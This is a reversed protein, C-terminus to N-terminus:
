SQPTSHTDECILCLQDGDRILEIEDIEAGDSTMVRTCRRGFKKTGIELLEPITDPLSALKAVDGKDPCRLIVRSPQHGFFPSNTFSHGDPAADGRTAAASVFGFLSNRFTNVRRRPHKDVWTVERTRPTVDMTYGTKVNKLFTPDPVKTNPVMLVSQVKADEKFHDFLAKIEENGYHEALNRPTWGNIDSKDIDAGKKLLFKVIEGKGNTVAAHLATTDDSTSPLTVDGGYRVIDKLLELNDQEVAHCAYQPVDGSALTAGQEVLLKIVAEQKAVIADWLPVIGETDKINPDAGYALLVVVCNENGKAAAIHLATRGNIDVENPNSGRRLLHQLLPEDGRTAAFCLSLPLDMRGHALMNEIEKLFSQMIPAKQEKLHELLNNIIIAGDGVNAQVLSLLSSRSLRLLQSLRKTRVTFLQPRYCLVGLEGCVGGSYFDEIIQESGNQQYIFEMAGSVLVYLDTPAENQLIVNEKPPFYGAKMESVLQHLLDDSVGRFLYVKELLPYFLYHSISSKIANPLSELIEQHQLGESNARYKLRLHAVMQEQLHAPLGNRVAFSSAAQVTERFKRTRSTADVVLNTMNGIIYACLGLNFLMYFIDFIMEDTNVPHLDGYGTTSLTSISWYVSAVYRVWLDKKLDDDTVLTLWINKSNPHHAAINYFFCAAAHVAFLTVSVLKLCRIWFYNINPAKELRSFMKSVRRLRWLRLMNFFGYRKLFPPLIKIALEYPITSIVDLAFWSRVYRKAIKDREDILIFTKPDLYALFFTLIIDIAFFGNVVNDILALVKFPRELFGFEFPSVWANYVVLIILFGEWTRYRSSLPSIIYPRTVMRRNSRAGLSPLLGRTFSYTSEDISSIEDKDNKEEHGKCSSSSKNLWIKM